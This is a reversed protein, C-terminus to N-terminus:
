VGPHRPWRGFGFVLAAIAAGLFPIFLLLALAPSQGTKSFIRWVPVITIAVLLLMVILGGFDDEHM